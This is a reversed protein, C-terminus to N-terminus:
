WQIPTAGEVREQYLHVEAASHLAAARDGLQVRAAHAAVLDGPAQAGRPEGRSSERGPSPARFTVHRPCLIDRSTVLHLSYDM